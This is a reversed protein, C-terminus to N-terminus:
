PCDAKSFKVAGLPVNDSTFAYRVWYGNKLLIRTEKDTCATQKMLRHINTQFLQEDFTSLDLPEITYSLTVTDKEYSARRLTTLEDVKVPLTANTKEVTSRVYDENHSLWGAERFGQMFGYVLAFTLLYTAAINLIGLGILKRRDHFFSTLIKYGLWAGLAGAAAPFLGHLFIPAGAAMPFVFMWKPLNALREDMEKGSHWVARSVLVKGDKAVSFEFGPPLMTQKLTVVVESGDYPITCINLSKMRNGVAMERGDISVKMKSFLHPLQVEVLMGDLQETLKAM